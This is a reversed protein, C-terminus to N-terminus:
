PWDSISLSLLQSVLVPLRSNENADHLGVTVHFGDQLFSWAPRKTSSDPARGQEEDSSFPRWCCRHSMRLSYENAVVWEVEGSSPRLGAYSLTILSNMKEM